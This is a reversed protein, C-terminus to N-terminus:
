ALDFLQDLNTAAIVGQVIDAIVQRETEARKQETIDEITGVHGTVAGDNRIVTSKGRVWRVDGVPTQFRFQMNFEGAQAATKQWKAVVILADAPHVARTWGDGLSEELTLGAISQWRPNTYLCNGTVDTQFIGIPSFNSLTRFREESAGLEQHAA